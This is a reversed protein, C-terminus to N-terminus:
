GANDKSFFTNANNSSYQRQLRRLVDKHSSKTEETELDLGLKLGEQFAWDQQV